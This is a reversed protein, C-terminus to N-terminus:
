LHGFNWHMRVFDPKCVPFARIRRHVHIGSLLECTRHRYCIWQCLRPHQKRPLRLKSPGRRLSDSLIFTLCIGHMVQVMSWVLGTLTSAIFVEDHGYEELFLSITSLCLCM